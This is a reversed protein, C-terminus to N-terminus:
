MNSVPFGRNLYEEFLKVYPLREVVLEHEQEILDLLQQFKLFEESGHLFLERQSQLLVQEMRTRSPVGCEKAEFAIAKWISDINLPAIYGLKDHKVFNRKLFQLKHFDVFMTPTGNKDATTVTFGLSSYVKSITLMNYIQSIRACISAVDDDGMTMMHVDKFFQILDTSVLEDYAYMALFVNNLSNVGLTTTVGSINGKSILAVDNMHIVMHIQLSYIMFYVIRAADPHYGWKLALLYCIMACIRFCEADMSVDYKKFDADIYFPHELLWKALEDWDMSAANKGGFCFSFYPQSLLYQLIPGIYMRMVINFIFDTSYFIRIDFEDLKKRKKIEDKYSARCIPTTLNGSLLETIMKEIRERVSQKLTYRQEGACDFLDNKDKLNLLALLPGLSTKFKVRDVLQYEDGFIAQELTLPSLVVTDTFNNVLANIVREVRDSNLKCKIKFDLPAFTHGFASGFKGDPMQGSIKRPIDYEETFKDKVQEYLFSRKYSSHFKNTPGPLTGLTVVHPSNLTRFMSNESLRGIGSLIESQSMCFSMVTPDPFKEICKVIQQYTLVCGGTVTGTTYNIKYSIVGMIFSSNNLTSIVPQGCDGAEAPFKFEFCPFTGYKGIPINVGRANAPIFNGKYFYDVSFQSANYQNPFYKYISTGLLATQLRVIYLESNDIAKCNSSTLLQRNGEVTITIGEKLTCTLPDDVFHKNCIIYQPSLQLSYAEKVSPNEFSTTFEIKLTHSKVITMLNSSNVGATILDSVKIKKEPDLWGNVHMTSRLDTCGVM